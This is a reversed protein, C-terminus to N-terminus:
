MRHAEGVVFRVLATLILGVMFALFCSPRCCHEILSAHKMEHLTGMYLFTGAGLALATAKALVATGTVDDQVLGGVVMGMPTVFAFLTFLVWAQRHSLTSRVMSLALAFAATGKHLIIAVFVLAAQMATDSIGLATGLFFSPVAIMATAILPVTAPIKSGDATSLDAAVVHSTLHELALLVLFAVIAIVSAVPYDLDPLTQRFIHSSAPLLMTLSLALFVGSAFTEGHPFGHSAHAREPYALPLYGGAFAVMLIAVLYIWQFDTLM